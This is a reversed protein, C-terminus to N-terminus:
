GQYPLDPEFRLSRWSPVLGCSSHRAATSNNPRNQPCHRTSDLQISHHQQQQQQASSPPGRQSTHGKNRDNKTLFNRVSSQGQSNPPTNEKSGLTYRERKRRMRKEKRKRGTYKGSSRRRVAFGSRASSKSCNSRKSRKSVQVFLPVALVRSRSATLKQKGAVAKGNAGRISSTLQRAVQLAHM